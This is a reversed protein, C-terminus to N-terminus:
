KELENFLYDLSVFIHNKCEELNDKIALNIERDTDWQVSTKNYCENFNALEIDYSYNLVNRIAQEKNM